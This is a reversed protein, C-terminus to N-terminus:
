RATAAEDPIDLPDGTRHDEIQFRLFSHVADQVRADSTAIVVRAGAPTEEFHYRIAKRRRVMEPVGPPVRAHIEGPLAFDGRAFAGAVHALHARIASVTAGDEADSATVVIVGGQRTLLFHHVTAKQSFGMAVEGRADVEAFHSAASGAHAAHDPCGPPPAVNESAHARAPAALASLVLMSSWWRM